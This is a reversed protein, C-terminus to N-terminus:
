PLPASCKSAAHDTALCKSCVHRFVCNDGFPCSMYPEPRNWKRCPAAASGPIRPRKASKQIGGPAQRKSGSQDERPRCPCSVKLHDMSNCITCLGETSLAMGTFCQAYIGGDIKAWDKKGIDAAEQRFNHDYIIWSPWKFKKSLRAIVASYMLLSQAREPYKTLLVATNIAYCQVWTALDPVLRKAQVLDAAQLLVVQGGLDSSLASIPRNFFHKICHPGTM